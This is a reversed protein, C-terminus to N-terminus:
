MFAIKTEHMAFVLLSKRLLILSTGICPYLLAVFMIDQFCHINRCTYLVLKINVTGHVHAYITGISLIACILFTRVIKIVQYAMSM